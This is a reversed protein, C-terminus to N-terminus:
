PRTREAVLFQHMIVIPAEHPRSHHSQWAELSAWIHAQELRETESWHRTLYINVGAVAGAASGSTLYGVMFGHSRRKGYKGEKFRSMGQRVYRACLDSKSAAVLKCEVVVHPEHEDEEERLKQFYICIDPVNGEPTKTERAVTVGLERMTRRMGGILWRTMEEEGLTAELADNEAAAEWGDAIAKLVTLVQGQALEVSRGAEWDDLTM